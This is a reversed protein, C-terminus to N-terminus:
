IKNRRTGLPLLLGGPQLFYLISKTDEEWEHECLHCKKNMSKFHANRCKIVFLNPDYDQDAKVHNHPRKDKLDKEEDILM